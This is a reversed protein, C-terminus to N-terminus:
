AVNRPARPSGLRPCTGCTPAARRSAIRFDDARLHEVMIRTRAGAFDVADQGGSRCVPARREAVAAIDVATTDRAVYRRVLIHDEVQSCVEHRGTVEPAAVQPGSVDGLVQEFQGGLERLVVADADPGFHVAGERGLSSSMWRSSVRYSSMPLERSPNMGSKPQKISLGACGAIWRSSV